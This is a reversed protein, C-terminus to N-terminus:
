DIRVIFGTKDIQRTTGDKTVVWIIKKPLDKRPFANIDDCGGDTFCLMVDPNIERARDIGPRLVTGGRGKVKFDIDSVRKLIYEKQLEADNELVTVKCHRDKEIINKCGSLGERVDDNSMSGSTDILIVIHFTFDRTKGPFPSIAPLNDDDDIIFSYTRKRNITTLSRKFKSFRSGKILKQILQYYPIKPPELAANILDQIHGPLSGRRHKFNKVSDKIIDQIHGDIKRSLSSVDAVESAVDSWKSHDGIVDYDQGAGGDSNPCSDCPSGKGCGEEGPQDGEGEEGPQNGSGETPEGKEGPQGEEGPEKPKNDPNHECNKCDKQKKKLEELLKFYYHEAPMGEEMGYLDPFCPAFPRGGIIPERPFDIQPNVASDAAINWIGIKGKKVKENPENALLRLLRPIHKNLVHMGEHEVVKKMTPDTTGPFYAPNFLLALTGDKRPAVGMISPLSEDKVRRIRSFIYGFYNYSINEPGSKITMEAILNKLREAPTEM